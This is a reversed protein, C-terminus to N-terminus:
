FLIVRMAIKFGDGAFVSMSTITNKKYYFDLKEGRIAIPIVVSFPYGMKVSNTKASGSTQNSLEGICDLMDSETIEDLEVGTMLRTVYRASVTDMYLMLMGPREGMLPLLAAVASSNDVDADPTYVVFEGLTTRCVDTMASRLNSTLTDLYVKSQTKDLM